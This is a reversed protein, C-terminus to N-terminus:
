STMNSAALEDSFAKHPVSRKRLDPRAGSSLAELHRGPGSTVALPRFSAISAFQAACKLRRFGNKGAFTDVSVVELLKEYLM